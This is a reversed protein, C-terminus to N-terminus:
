TCRLRLRRAPARGRDGGGAASAGRAAPLGLLPQAADDDPRLRWRHGPARAPLGDATEGRRVAGDRGPCGRRPETRLDCQDRHVVSLEQELRDVEDLASMAAPVFASDAAALTVEFRCAMARRHVRIWHGCAPERGSVDADRPLLATLLRRRDMPLDTHRAHWSAPSTAMGVRSTKALLSGGGCRRTERGLGRNMPLAEGLLPSFVSTGQFFECGPVRSYWGQALGAPSGSRHSFHTSCERGRGNVLEIVACACAVGDPCRWGIRDSSEFSHSAATPPVPECHLAHLAAGGLDRGTTRAPRARPDIRAAARSSCANGRAGRTRSSHLAALRRWEAGHRAAPRHDSRRFKTASQM